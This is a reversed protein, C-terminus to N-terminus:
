TRCRNVVLTSHHKRGIYFGNKQLLSEEGGEMSDDSLEGILKMYFNYSFLSINLYFLSLLYVGIAM